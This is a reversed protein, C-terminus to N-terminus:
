KKVYPEYPCSIKLQITEAIQGAVLSPIKIKYDALKVPFTSEGLIRKNSIKFVAPVTIKNEVGHMTLTGNVMAKYTGDENFNVKSLDAITGKFSAKPFKDSELYDDNFHDQMLAKKFKFGTVLVQFALEGKQLDVISFVENNNADIDEASTESLFSISGNRTFIKDQSLAKISFSQLM